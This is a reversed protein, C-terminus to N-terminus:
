GSTETSVRKLSRTHWWGAIVAVLLAILGGIRGIARADGMRLIAGPVLILLVTVVFAIVMRGLTQRKKPSRVLLVVAAILLLGGLPSPAPQSIQM